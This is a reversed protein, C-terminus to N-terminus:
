NFAKVFHAQPYAKQLREMLSDTHTTFFPLVGHVPAGGIPNCADVVTKGALNAAGALGLADAAVHGAVALVVLEGFAAAEAFSTIKAKPNKAGWDALKAPERTGIAAEHGHKLFGAALVQGVVGSGLIGVKM